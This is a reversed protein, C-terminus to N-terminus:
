TRLSNIRVYTSREYVVVFATATLSSPPLRAAAHLAGDATTLRIGAAATDDIRAVSLALRAREFREDPPTPHLDLRAIGDAAERLVAAIPVSYEVASATWASM